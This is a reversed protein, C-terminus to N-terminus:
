QRAKHAIFELLKSPHLKFQMVVADGGEQTLMLMKVAKGEDRGYIATEEHGDRSVRVLPRWGHPLRPTIVGAPEIDQIVALKMGSAGLPRAAGSLFSAVGMFPIHLRRKGYHREVSAVLRDFDFDDDDQAANLAPGGLLATALLLSSLRM